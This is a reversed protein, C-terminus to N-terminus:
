QTAPYKKFFILKPKEHREKEKTREKVLICQLIYYKCPTKVLSTKEPVWNLVITSYAGEWRTGFCQDLFSLRSPLM